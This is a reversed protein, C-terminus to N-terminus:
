QKSRPLHEGCTRRYGNETNTGCTSERWCGPEDCAVRVSDVTRCAPCAYLVDTEDFPSPAQLVDLYRGTWNCHREICVAKYNFVDSM